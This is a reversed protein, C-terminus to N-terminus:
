ERKVDQIYAAIYTAPPGSVGRTEQRLRLTTKRLREVAKDVNPQWGLFIDAKERAHRYTRTIPGEAAELAVILQRVKHRLMDSKGVHQKLTRQKSHYYYEVISDIVAGCDYHAESYRGAEADTWCPVLSWDVYAQGWQDLVRELSHLARRRARPLRRMRYHAQLLLCDGYHWRAARMDSTCDSHKNEYADESMHLVVWWPGNVGDVLELADYSTHFSDPPVNRSCVSRTAHKSAASGYEYCGIDPGSGVPRAHGELDNTVNTLTVGADIAPAGPLLHYDGVEPNNWLSTPNAALSHRDQGKAKWQALTYITDGDDPTVRDLMNYDSDVNAIDAQSGCLLNGAHANRSYLINNRVTNPGATQKFLLACRGDAAMDITNNLIQNDKPGAAADIRFNAIGTAHNNFLLNNRIISNQVGDMNIAGGGGKGNNYVINDEILAGTILGVGGQSLDGNMHIGCGHNGHSVNGRVIPHVCSNSVYIGHERESGYCENYAILLDDSFSTFIGWTANNGYVGNKITVHSSHNVRVAARQAHFSRLGDVVIYSAHTIFITDRNDSRDTTPTVVANSGEARLIIPAQETGILSDVTFGLYSGDAVLVTDGAKVRSLAARIQRFPAAQSGDNSDSGMPVVYYTTAANAPLINLFGLTLGLLPILGVLARGFSLLVTFM